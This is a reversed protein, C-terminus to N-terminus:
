QYNNPDVNITMSAKYGKVTEKERKLERVYDYENNNSVLNNYFVLQPTLDTIYVKSFYQKQTKDDTLSYIFYVVQSKKSIGNAILSTDKAVYSQLDLNRPFTFQSQLKSFAYGVFNHGNNDAMDILMQNEANYGHTKNYNWQNYFYYGLVVVFIILSSNILFKYLKSFSKNPLFLYHAVLSVILVVVFALVPFILYMPPSDLIDSLKYAAFYFYWITLCIEITLIVFTRLSVKLLPHQM